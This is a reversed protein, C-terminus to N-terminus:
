CASTSVCGFSCLVIPVLALVGTNTVTLHVLITEPIKGTIQYKVLQFHYEKVAKIMMLVCFMLLTLM